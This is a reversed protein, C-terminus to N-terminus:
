GKTSVRRARIYQSGRTQDYTKRNRENGDMTKALPLVREFFENRLETAKNSDQRIPTAIKSGLWHQLAMVFGPRYVTTDRIHAVYRIQAIDADTLLLDTEVDWLDREEDAENGNLTVLRLFDAPLKYQFAYGFAPKTAQQAAVARRILCNWKHMEGVEAVSLDYVKKIERATKNERDDLDM